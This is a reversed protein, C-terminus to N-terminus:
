VDKRRRLKDVISETSRDTTRSIQSDTKDTQKNQSVVSEDKILFPLGSRRGVGGLFFILFSLFM